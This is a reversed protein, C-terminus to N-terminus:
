LWREMEERVKAGDGSGGADFDIVAKNDRYFEAEWKELKKHAARKRRINIVSAFLGDGIMTFYGYFTWWHLYPLARVETHAISNVAPIILPADKDWDILRPHPKGDGRQGCDIFAAAAEIAGGIHEPPISRWGPFMIILMVAAKAQANLDPDNMATLVDLVARFDTRIPYVAGDVTVSSPLGYRGKTKKM